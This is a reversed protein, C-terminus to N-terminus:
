RLTIQALDFRYALYMKLFRLSSSTLPPSKGGLVMHGLLFGHGVGLCGGYGFHGGQGVRLGHGLDFM